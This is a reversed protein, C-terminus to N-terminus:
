PQSTPCDPLDIVRNKQQWDEVASNLVDNILMELTQETELAIEQLKYLVDDSIEFVAIEDGDQAEEINSM